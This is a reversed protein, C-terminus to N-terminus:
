GGAVAAGAKGRETLADQTLDVSTDFSFAGAINAEESVSSTWPNAWGQVSELRNLWTSLSDFHLTTGSFTMTGVFTTTSTPDTPAVATTDVTSAWSTLYTDPPIVKSVDVLVGSYAVENAYASDLLQEQQQAEVQLEEYKQLDSIEQQLAANTQNQAEIDDNVGNLRVGQLVWFFIILGIVAAAGVLVLLTRRRVEQGQKIDTPLLNVRSM